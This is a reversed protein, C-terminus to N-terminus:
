GLGSCAVWYYEVWQISFMLGMEQFYPILDHMYGCSM